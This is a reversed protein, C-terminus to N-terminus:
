ITEEDKKQSNKHNEDKLELSNKTRQKIITEISKIQEDIEKFLITDSCGCPSEIFVNISSLNISNIINVRNEKGCLVTLKSRVEYGQSYGIYINSHGLHGKYTGILQNNKTFNKGLCLEYDQYKLCINNLAFVCYDGSIIASNYVFRQSVQQEKEKILSRVKGLKYRISCYTQDNIAEPNLDNIFHFIPRLVNKVKEEIGFSIVDHVVYNQAKKIKKKEENLETQNLLYILREQRMKELYKDTNKLKNLEESISNLLKIGKLAEEKGNITWKDRQASITENSKRKEKLDKLKLELAEQIKSTCFNKNEDSGDECDCLGNHVKDFPIIKQLITINENECQFYCRNEVFTCKQNEDCIDNMKSNCRLILLIFRLLLM